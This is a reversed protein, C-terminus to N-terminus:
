DATVFDFNIEQTEGRPCNSQIDSADIWTSDQREYTYQGEHDGGDKVLDVTGDKNFRYAKNIRRRIAQRQTYPLGPWWQDYHENSTIIFKTAKLECYSGKRQGKYRYRDVWRKFLTSTIDCKDGPLFDDIIVEDEGNYGDWWKTDPDKWFAHPALEEARRSKGTGPEGFLVICEVSTESSRPETHIDLLAQFGRHYKVYLDPPLQSLDRHQLLAETAEKLDTRKGQSTEFTGFERREGNPKRSEEKQCYEKAAKRSYKRPEGHVHDGFLSKLAAVRVTRKFEIYGQLHERGTDPTLEEQYIIYRVNDPLSTFKVDLEQLSYNFLTFCWHAVQPQKKAPM